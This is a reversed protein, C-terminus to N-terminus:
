KGVDGNMSITPVEPDLEWIDLHYESILGDKSAKELVARINPIDTHFFYQDNMARFTWVDDGYSYVTMPIGTADFIETLFDMEERAMMGGYKKKISESIRIEADIVYWAPEKSM